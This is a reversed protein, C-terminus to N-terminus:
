MMSHSEKRDSASKRRRGQNSLTNILAALVGVFVLLHILLFGYVIWEM